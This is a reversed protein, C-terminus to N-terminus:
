KGVWGRSELEHVLDEFDSGKAHVAVGEGTNAYMQVAPIVTNLVDWGEEGDDTEETLTQRISDRMKTASPTNRCLLVPHPPPTKDPRKASAQKIFFDMPLEDMREVDSNTTACAVLVLDAVRLVSRGIGQHNELHGCDVVGISGAPLKPPAEEHFRGNAIRHVTLGPREEADPRAQAWRYLQESEDADFGTVDYGLEHLAHM